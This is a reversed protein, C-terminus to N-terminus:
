DFKFFSLLNYGKISWPKTNLYSLYININDKFRYKLINQIYMYM